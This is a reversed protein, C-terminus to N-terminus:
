IGEDDDTAASFPKLVELWFRENLDDGYTAKLGRFMPETLNLFIENYERLNDNEVDGSIINLMLSTRLNVARRIAKMDNEAINAPMFVEIDAFLVGINCGELVGSTDLIVNFLKDMLVFSNDSRRHIVVRAGKTEFMFSTFGLVPKSYIYHGILPDVIYGVGHLDDEKRFSFWNGSRASFYSFKDHETHRYKFEIDWGDKDKVAHWSGFHPTVGGYGDLVVDGSNLSVYGYSDGRRFWAMGYKAPGLEDVDFVKSIVGSQASWFFWRENKHVTWVSGHGHRPSFTLGNLVVNFDDNIISYHEAEKPRVVAVGSQFPFAEAYPGSLKEGIVDIFYWGDAYMVCKKQDSIPHADLYPGLGDWEGAVNIYVWGGKAEDFVAAYGESFDHASQYPGLKKVGSEVNYFYFKGDIDWLAVLRDQAHCYFISFLLICATISRAIM